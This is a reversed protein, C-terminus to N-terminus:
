SEEQEHVLVITVEVVPAAAPDLKADCNEVKVALAVPDAVSVKECDGLALAVVPAFPAAGAPM